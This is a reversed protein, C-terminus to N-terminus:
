RGPYKKGMKWNNLSGESIFFGPAAVEPHILLFFQCCAFLRNSVIELLSCLGGEGMWVKVTPGPM